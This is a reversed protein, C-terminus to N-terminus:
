GLIAAGLMRLPVETLQTQDDGATARSRRGEGALTGARESCGTAAFGGLLVRRSIM